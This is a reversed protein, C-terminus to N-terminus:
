SKFRSWHLENVTSDDDWKVTVYAEQNVFNEQLRCDVITGTRGGVTEVKQGHQWFEASHTRSPQAGCFGLAILCLLMVSLLIWMAIKGERGDCSWDEGYKNKM